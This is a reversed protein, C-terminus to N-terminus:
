YPNTAFAIETVTYNTNSTGKKVEFQKQAAMSFDTNAALANISIGDAPRLIVATSSFTNKLYLRTNGGFWNNNTANLVVALNNTGAANSVNLSVQKDLWSAPIVTNGVDLRYFNHALYRSTLKAIETTFTSTTVYGALTSSLSSATVFNQSSVYAAVAALTTYNQSLVWTQVAAMTTYNLSAIYAKIEDDYEGIAIAIQNNVYEPTVESAEYVKGFLDMYVGNKPDLTPFCFLVFDGVETVTASAGTSPKLWYTVYNSPDNVQIVRVAKDSARYYCVKGIFVGIYQQLKQQKQLNQELKILDSFM